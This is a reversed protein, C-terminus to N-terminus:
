EDEEESSFWRQFLGRKKHFTRRTEIIRNNKLNIIYRSELPPSMLIKWQDGPETFLCYIALPTDEPKKVSVKQEVGPIVPVAALVSKDKPIAFVMNSVDPYSETLFIQTDVSRILMYFSQGNNTKLDSQVVLMTQPPMPKGACAASLMAAATCIMMAILRKM